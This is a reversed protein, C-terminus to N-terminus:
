SSASAAIATSSPLSSISSAIRTYKKRMTEELQETLVSGDVHKLRSLTSVLHTVEDLIRQRGIVTTPDIEEFHVPIRRNLLGFIRFFVDTMQEPPLIAVLVKHLTTINRSMEEFYECTMMTSSSTTPAAESTTGTAPASHNHSSSNISTSGSSNNNGNDSGVSTAPVLSRDWDVQRLKAASAEVTDGIISVFKAVIATHHEFLEQSVRDMETLLVEHKPPIQAVLAARIHPLLAIFLGLSRGTIALHKASISKLRAASQIAQAGLVLQKTRQNFLRIQEVIKTIVDGTIPAFHFALDLYSLVIETLLLVSWVVKYEVQDVLAARVEKDKKKIQGTGNGAQLASTDSTSTSQGNLGGSHASGSSGNGNGGAAVLFAKGSSVRDIERQRDPTVDCQVWRENDLTSVLRNKYSEHLYDLFGKSQIHLCSRLIAATSTSSHELCLVFTLSIEWLFKMRHPDFKANIDRRFNIIQVISKQVIDSAAQLISKSFAILKDRATNDLAQLALAVASQQSPDDSDDVVSLYTSSQNRSHNGLGSQQQSHPRAFKFDELDNDLAALSLVGAAASAASPSPPPALTRQLFSHFDEAKKLSTMIHEFCMSLCSLFNETSMDRIRQAYPANQAQQNNNFDMGNSNSSEWTDDYMGMSPDFNSIYEMVCTRIILKLADLLRSKYMNLAPLLAENAILSQLLRTCLEQQEQILLSAREDAKSGNSGHGQQTIEDFDFDANYTNNAKGSNSSAKSPSPESGTTTAVPMCETWQIAMTVFKNCLVENVGAEIDQLQQALMKVTHIGQLHEQYIRKTTFLLEHVSFYDEAELLALIALRGQMWQRLHELKDHLARCNKHRKSLSPIKMAPVITESNIQSMTGRVQKLEKLAEHVDHQLGKLDDLARFFAPSRSWIQRLLAVEVLDLYYSLKDQADVSPDHRAYQKDSPGLFLIAQNFMDQKVLSFDPRFFIDPVHLYCLSLEEDQSKKARARPTAAVNNSRPTQLILHRRTITTQQQAKALVEAGHAGLYIKFVQQMKRLFRNLQDTESQTLTLVVMGNGRSSVSSPMTTHTTNSHLSSHTSPSFLSGGGIGIASQFDLPLSQEAAFEDFLNDLMTERPNM